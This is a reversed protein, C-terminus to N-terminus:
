HDSGKRFHAQDEGDPKEPWYWDIEASSSKRRINNRVVIFQDELYVSIQAPNERTAMNHKIANEILIQLSIPIIQFEGAESWEVNLGSKKKM